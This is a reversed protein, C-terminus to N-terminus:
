IVSFAIQANEKLSNFSLGLQTMDKIPGTVTSMAGSILNGVIPIGQITNSINSLTGLASNLGSLSGGSFSMHGKLANMDRGTKNAQASIHKLRSDVDHDGKLGIEVFLSFAKIAM